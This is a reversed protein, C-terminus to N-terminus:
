KSKQFRPIQLGSAYTHCLIGRECILSFMIALNAEAGAVGLLLRQWPQHESNNSRLISRRQYRRWSSGPNRYRQICSPCFPPSLIGTRQVSGERNATTIPGGTVWRAASSAPAPRPAAADTPRRADTTTAGSPAVSPPTTPRRGPKDLLEVYYAARGHRAGSVVLEGVFSVFDDILAVPV